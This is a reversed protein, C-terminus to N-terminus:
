QTFTLPCPAEGTFLETDAAAAEALPVAREPSVFVQHDPTAVVSAYTVVERAGSSAVGGHAVWRAGDWVLDDLRVQEIPAELVAGDLAKVLVMQGAAICRGTRAGHYTYLDHLRGALTASNRMAYVKKVSASGVAARIELARRAQDPLPGKLAAEVADEDMSDLHVGQAHLWGKLQQLETPQCGALAELEDGYRKLAQEIIAICDEVGALDIRVGRANITQDDQWYALEDDSLDPTIASAEAESAIDTENYSYLRLADAHDERVDENVKRQQGPTMAPSLLRLAEATVDAPEWLPMVRMRKDAKTPNRPVSFKDLLRKGDSDKRTALAFVEGFVELKGPGAHARSKAMACRWQEPRVAPWGMRAVCVNRWIWREFGVNWAELLGGRAIHDFLDAPLPAGPRWGRRGKGDKLDYHLCLVECTPDESYVAAGVVGLGKTKAGPPPAWRERAADWRHGAQSFTEFDLDPIVTSYTLGAPLRTGALLTDLAMPPPPVAAGAVTRVHVRLGRAQAKAIMDRTGASHGDWVAVLADARDAMLTNRTHGATRPEAAWDAPYPEVAIGYAGAWAEGLMDAGPARGSLIVTPWWGCERVAAEVEALDTVSRSGAIITRM